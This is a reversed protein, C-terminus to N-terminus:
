YTPFTRKGLKAPEEIRLFEGPKGDPTMRFVKVPNSPAFDRLGEVIRRMRGQPKWSPTSSKFSSPNM